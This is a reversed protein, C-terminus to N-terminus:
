HAGELLMRLGRFALCSTPRKKLTACAFDYWTTEGGAALHYIGTVRSFSDALSDDPSTLQGLVKATAEAIDRSWTPTGVQDRVVKLEEMETALRLITRLFNRGGNSYVWATRFILHSVGSARIAEEGALKTKGYM